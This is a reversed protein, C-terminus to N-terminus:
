RMPLAKSAARSAGGRHARGVDRPTGIKAATNSLVMARILDLRKVALGQAIMGGIRSGSSSATAQM